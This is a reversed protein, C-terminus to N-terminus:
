VDDGDRDAAGLQDVLGDMGFGVGEVFGQIKKIVEGEAAPGAHNVPVWAKGDSWGFQGSGQGRRFYAGGVFMPSRVLRPPLTSVNSSCAHGFHPRVPVMMMPAINLAPTM